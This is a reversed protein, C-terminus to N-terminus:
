WLYQITAAARYLEIALSLRKYIQKYITYAPLPLKGPLVTTPTPSQKVPLQGCCQLGSSYRDPTWSDIITARHLCRPKTNHLLKSTYLRYSELGQHYLPQILSCENWTNGLIVELEYTTHLLYPMKLEIQISVDQFFRSFMILLFEDIKRKCLPSSALISYPEKINKLAWWVTGVM